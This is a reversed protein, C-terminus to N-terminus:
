ESILGALCDTLWVPVRECGEEPVWEHVYESVFESM